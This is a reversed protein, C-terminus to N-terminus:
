LWGSSTCFDTDPKMTLTPWAIAMTIATSSTKMPSRVPMMMPATSSIVTEPVSSKM